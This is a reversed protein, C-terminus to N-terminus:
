NTIFFRAELKVNYSNASSCTKKNSAIIVGCGAAKRYNQLSYVAGDM